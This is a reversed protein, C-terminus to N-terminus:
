AVGGVSRPARVFPLENPRYYGCDPKLTWFKNEGGNRCGFRCCWIGNFDMWGYYQCEPCLAIVLHQDSHAEEWACTEGPGPPRLIVVVPRTLDYPDGEPGEAGQNAGFHEAVAYAKEIRGNHLGKVEAWIRQHPLYFDLRYYIDGLKIAEPEYQWYWGFADFTAAWDAELTSRFPTGRYITPVARINM